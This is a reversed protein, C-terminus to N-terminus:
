VISVSYMETTRIERFSAFQANYKLKCQGSAPICCLAAAEKTCQGVVRGM